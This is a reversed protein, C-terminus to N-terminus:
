TREPPGPLPAQGRHRAVVLWRLAGVVAWLLLPLGLASLHLVFAAVSLVAALLVLPMSTGIRWTSRWRAWADRGGLRQAFGPDEARMRRELEELVRRERENIM